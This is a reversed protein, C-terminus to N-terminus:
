VDRADPSETIESELPPSDRLILNVPREPEDKLGAGPQMETSSPEIISRGIRFM